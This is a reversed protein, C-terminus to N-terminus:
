DLGSLICRIIPPLQISDWHRKSGGMTKGWRYKTGKLAHTIGADILMLMIGIEAPIVCASFPVLYLHPFVIPPLLLCQPVSSLVYLSEIWNGGIMLHIRDPRSWRGHIDVRVRWIIDICWQENISTYRMRQLSSFVPSPLRHPTTLPM